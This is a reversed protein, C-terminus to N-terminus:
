GQRVGNEKHTATKPTCHDSRQKNHKQKSTVAWLVLNRFANLIYYASPGIFFRCLIFIVPRMYKTEITLITDGTNRSSLKHKELGFDM